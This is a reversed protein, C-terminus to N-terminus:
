RGIEQSMRAIRLLVVPAPLVVVHDIRHAERVHAAILAHRYKSIQKLDKPRLERTWKVEIPYLRRQRVYVADVEGAAKIYFTPISRALHTLVTAEAERALDVDALEGAIALGVGEFDNLYADVCRHIFPDSFYLKRAKKPAATLSHEELAPIIKVADMRELLQCYEAVTKPHDISLDRALANWTIQSGYRKSVAGLVERLYTESRGQRLVDGRIWDTYTRMTAVAIAADREHDNIATLYGGTTHYLRYERELLDLVAEDTPALEADPPGASLSELARDPVHARLRCFELFDLPHHHFDVRRARGRRGPLRQMADQILILDSGTLLLFVRELIGADALFKVVRDWGPIYTVEDVLIYNLPRTDGASAADTLTRRFDEADHFLEGTVYTIRDPAVHRGLLLVMLQKLLTTKGVQRGGCVTYIGPAHLPLQDLVAPRYVLPQKALQRLTPDRTAFRSADDRHTNHPSWRPDM